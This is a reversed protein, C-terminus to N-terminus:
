INPVAAVKRRLAKASALANELSHELLALPMEKDYSTRCEGFQHTSSALSAELTLFLDEQSLRDMRSPDPLPPMRRRLM